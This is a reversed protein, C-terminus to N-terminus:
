RDFERIQSSIRKFGKIDSSAHYLVVTGDKKHVLIKWGQEFYYDLWAKQNKTFKQEM